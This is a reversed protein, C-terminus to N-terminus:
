NEELDSLAEELEQMMELEIKDTDPQQEEVKVPEDRLLPGKYGHGENPLSVTPGLDGGVQAQAARLAELCSNKLRNNLGQCLDKFTDDSYVSISPPLIGQIKGLRNIMDIYEINTPREIIAGESIKEPGPVRITSPRRILENFIDKNPPLAQATVTPSENENSGFLFNNIRELVTPLAAIMQVDFDKSQKRIASLIDALTFGIDTRNIYNSFESILGTVLRRISPNTPVLNTFLPLLQSVDQAQSQLPYKRNRFLFQSFSRDRQQQCISKCFPNNLLRM